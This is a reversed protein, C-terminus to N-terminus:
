SAEIKKPAGFAQLSDGVRLGMNSDGHSLQGTRLRRDGGECRAGSHSYNSIPPQARIQLSSTSDFPDEM